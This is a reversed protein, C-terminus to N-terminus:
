VHFPDSSCVITIRASRFTCNEAPCCAVIGLDASHVRLLDTAIAVQLTVELYELFIRIVLMNCKSVLYRSLLHRSRDFDLQVYM